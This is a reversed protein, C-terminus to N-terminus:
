ETTQSGGGSGGADVGGDQSNHQRSHPCLRPSVPRATLCCISPRCRESVLLRCYNDFARTQITRGKELGEWYKADIGTVAAFEEPSVTAKGNIIPAFTDLFMQTQAAIDEALKRLRDSGTM